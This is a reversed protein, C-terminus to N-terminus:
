RQYGMMWVYFGILRGLRASPACPTARSVAPATLRDRQERVM